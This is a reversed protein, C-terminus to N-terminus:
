ELIKNGRTKKKTKGRIIKGGKRGKKRTRRILSM